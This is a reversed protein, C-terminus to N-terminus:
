GLDGLREQWFGPLRSEHAYALIIIDNGRRYYVVRYPFRHVRRSRVAPRRTWGPVVPWTSPADMIDDVADEFRAIVVAGLGDAQTEYYEVAELYEHRASPHDVPRRSM